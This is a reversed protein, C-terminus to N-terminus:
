GLGADVLKAELEHGHFPKMLVDDAGVAKARAIDDPDNETVCYLIYPKRDSSLRLAGLVQLGTMDPMLWDLFIADPSREQCTALAEQGSEAESVEFSMSELVRRAVKRVVESDDAILCHKM